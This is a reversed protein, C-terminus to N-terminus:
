KCEQVVCGKQFPHRIQFFLIQERFEKWLLNKKCLPLMLLTLSNDGQFHILEGKNVSRMSPLIKLLHCKSINKRIQGLFYSVIQM